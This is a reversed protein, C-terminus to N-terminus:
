KEQVYAYCTSGFVQLKSVDPKKNTFAQFPTMKLRNNYCRNRISAAYRTAYNWLEKPLKSQILMCRVMEFLTRFSRESTGNQHPSYPSSFEQHIKNKTMLEKFDNSTFETGNDCRLRKINGYPSMDAIFQSTAATADSKNRLFYVNILGSYDDVFTICYKKGEYSVPTVCGSLDTHVLELPKRAKEDANRNRTEVMKGKMCTACDFKNKNSIKMGNVVNELNILDNTNCHGMLHHWSELSRVSAVHDDASNVYYLKGQQKIDFKTGDPTIMEAYDKDFVVKVGNLTLRRVSIIDQKFSPIYLANTLMINCKRGNSDQLQIRADGKCEVINQQRSSDALEITHKKNDFDDYIKVFKQKDCM